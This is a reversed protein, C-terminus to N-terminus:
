FFGYNFSVIQKYGELFDNAREFTEEQLCFTSVYVALGTFVYIDLQSFFSNSSVLPTILIRLNVSLSCLPWRFLLFPCFSRGFM